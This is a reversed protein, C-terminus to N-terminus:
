LFLSPATRGSRFFPFSWLDKCLSYFRCSDQSTPCLAPWGAFLSSSGKGMVASIVPPLFLSHKIMDVRLTWCEFVRLLPPFSVSPPTSLFFSGGCQIRIPLFLSSADGGCQSSPLIKSASFSVQSQPFLKVTPARLALLPPLRNRVRRPSHSCLPSSTRRCDTLAKFFFFWKSFFAFIL